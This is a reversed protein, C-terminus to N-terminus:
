WYRHHSSMKGSFIHDILGAAAFFFSRANSGSVKRAVMPSPLFINIFFLRDECLAVLGVSDEVNLFALHSKRDYELGALFRGDGNKVVPNKQHLRAPRDPEGCPIM